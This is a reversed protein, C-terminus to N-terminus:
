RLEACWSPVPFGQDNLESFAMVRQSDESIVAGLAGPFRQRDQQPCAVSARVRCSVVDLGGPQGQRLQGPV